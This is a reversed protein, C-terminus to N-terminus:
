SGGFAIYVAAVVVAAPADATVALVGVAVVPADRSAGVPEATLRLAVVMAGSDVKAVHATPAVADCTLWWSPAGAEVMENAVASL